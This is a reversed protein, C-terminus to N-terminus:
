ILIDHKSLEDKLASHYSALLAESYQLILGNLATLNDRSPSNLYNDVADLYSGLHNRSCDDIIISIDIM